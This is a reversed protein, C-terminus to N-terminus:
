ASSPMRSKQRDRPSPSTYLLCPSFDADLLLSDSTKSEAEDEMRNRLLAPRYGRGKEAYMTINLSSSDTTLTAIVHDPNVIEVDSETVCDKATVVCTGQKNLTIVSENKHFIQIALGKLNLLIDMVDEKVGPLTTYEHPAGEIHVRVVACGTISSLLVRRLANGLTHGFGHELPEMTIRASTPSHIDVASLRPQLLDEIQSM